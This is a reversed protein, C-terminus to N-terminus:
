PWLSCPAALGAHPTQEGFGEATITLSTRSLWAVAPVMPILGSEIPVTNLTGRFTALQVTIAPYYPLSSVTLILGESTHVDVQSPDLTGKVTKQRHLLPVCVTFIFTSVLFSSASAQM